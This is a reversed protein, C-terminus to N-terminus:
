TQNLTQLQSYPYTHGLYMFFSSFFKSVLVVFLIVCVVMCLHAIIFHLYCKIKISNNTEM